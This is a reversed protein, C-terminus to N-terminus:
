PRFLSRSLVGIHSRWCVYSRESSKSNEKSSVKIDNCSSSNTSSPKTLSSSGSGSTPESASSLPNSTSGYDSPDTDNLFHNVFQGIPRPPNNNPPQPRVCRWIIIIFPVAFLCIVGAVVPVVLLFWLIYYQGIKKACKLFRTFLQSMITLHNWKGPTFTTKPKRTPNILCM